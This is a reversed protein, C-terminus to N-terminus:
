TKKKKKKPQVRPMCFNKPWPGFGLWWLSWALDKVATLSTPIKEVRLFFFLFFWFSEHDEDGGEGESCLWVKPFLEGDM